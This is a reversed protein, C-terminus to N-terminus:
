RGLLQTVPSTFCRDGITVTLHTEGASRNVDDADFWHIARLRIRSAARRRFTHLAVRLLGDTASKFTWIRGNKRPVLRGVNRAAITGDPDELRISVPEGAYEGLPIQGTVHLAREAPNVIVRPRPNAFLDDCPCACSPSCRGPCALADNGDCAEDVERVGNGCTEADCADGTGDGDGDEQMINRVGPCNDIVDPLEDGDTDAATQTAPDPECRAGFACDADSACSGQERQCFGGNCFEGPQCDSKQLCGAALTEICRGAGSFVLDGRGEGQGILPSVIRNFTRDDLNCTAGAACDANSQCPGEIQECVGEGPRGVLPQCVQGLPCTLSQAGFNEVTPVCATGLSRICGGPPVFCVGNSCDADTACASGTSTCVGATTAALTHCAGEPTGNHCAQRANLLQLVLDTQDGDGNLDRQQDGEFTLFTVTDDQVRYPTRPDCAELRCPTVASGSSLTGGMTADFIQLVGDERDGDGNLDTGGNAGQSSELTRFAVLGTAGLVLEEAAQTTNAVPTAAEADFAHVVRDQADGDANLDRSGQAAEPTLFAVYRGNVDAADAAHSLNIWTGGGSAPHVQVVADAVDDDGNLDTGGQDAESVLAAIWDRSMGVWTAAEGLNHVQTGDWLHVVEDGDEADADNLPRAPCGPADGAAEPRLFAARGDFVAVQSTPCLTRLTAPGSGGTSTDLVQLVTDALDCDGTLDSGCDTQDPGRVYISRYNAPNLPDDPISDVNFIVYRGDGSMGTPYGAGNASQMGDPTFSLRETIQTSTDHRFIDQRSNTDGPVLNPSSSIFALHRGDESIHPDTVTTFFSHFHGDAQRGSSDVSARYLTGRRVDRLFVDWTANTDGAVLPAASLFAVFRGSASVDGLASRGNAQRGVSDLSVRETTRNVRDRLFVDGGPDNRDNILDTGNTDGPVLNNSAGFMVLWRGDQSMTSGNTSEDGQEGLSSVSEMTTQGLVRDRVFVDDSGNGDNPVLNSAPGWLGAFRGDGSIFEVNTWNNGPGGDPRVNLPETRGTVRDHIFSDFPSNPDYDALNTASSNFGVFRGTRSLADLDCDGNAPEGDSNKGVLETTGARRDRLFCGTAGNEVLDTSGSHFGVFRGDYSIEGTSGGANSPTGQPTVDIRETTQRARAAEWSRFFVRGGSVVIPRGNVVPAGDAALNPVGATLEAGDLRFVKLLTDGVDGDGNQDVNGQLPEPELYALVDGEVAVAPFSFPPQQIRTVARADAGGDGIPIVAGTARDTLRVVHDAADGDGNLDKNELAEELVFANLERSQDLGDLPVPDLATLNFSGCQGQPCDADGTCAALANAGGTCASQRLLVPGSGLAFRTTFDFLGPGCEGNPCDVDSTCTMGSRDGGVCAAAACTSGPCQADGLCPLGADSGGACQGVPQDGAIREHRAIRLVTQPADASGFFTVPGTATGPDSLPDFLPPLPKGGTSFSKLVGLGPIRIPSGRGPYSELASSARVLRLVPVLDKRFLVGRWDVPILANGATDVTFRIEDVTGDCPSTSPPPEPTCIAEYDNPPPLGTFSPFTTDPARGCSGDPAFLDGVCALLGAQASCPETALQCPLPEGVRSVAFVAPGSLTLDDDNSGVLADTDPFRFRLQTANLAIIDHLEIPDGTPDFILHRAPVCRAVGVDERDECTQLRGEVKSCDDAFLVATNPGSPPRFVITVVHDDSGADFGPSPGDCRPDLVVTVVDGPGAFPRDTAGLTSRFTLAPSPLIDCSGHAEWVALACLLTGGLRGLM